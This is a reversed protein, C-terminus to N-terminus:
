GRLFLLSAAVLVAVGGTGTVYIGEGVQIPLPWTAPVVDFSREVRGSEYVALALALGGDIAFAVPSGWGRALYTGALILGVIGLSLAILGHGAEVGTRGFWWLRVWPLSSGVIMLYGGVAASISVALRTRSANM